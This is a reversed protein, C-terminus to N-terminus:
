RSENGTPLTKKKKTIGKEIILFYEKKFLHICPYDLLGNDPFCFLLSFDRVLSFLGLEIM